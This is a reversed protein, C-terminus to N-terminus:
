AWTYHRGVGEREGARGYIAYYEKSCVSTYADCLSPLGVFPVTSKGNLLSQGKPENLDFPGQTGM